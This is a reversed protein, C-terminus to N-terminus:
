TAEGTMHRRQLLEFSSTVSTDIGMATGWTFLGATLFVVGGAAMLNRRLALGPLTGM